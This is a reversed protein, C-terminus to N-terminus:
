VMVSASGFTDQDLDNSLLLEYDPAIGKKLFCHDADEKINGKEEYTM